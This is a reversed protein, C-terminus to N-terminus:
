SRPAPCSLEELLSLASRAAQRKEEPGTMMTDAVRVRVGLAEIRPREEEDLRDIVMGDLRGLSSLYLRAVGLPSVDVGAWRLFKDSPGKLSRGGVIPSMAVVPAPAKRILDRLRSIALIPGISAVPNSPAIIVARAGEVAARVEPTVGAQPSGRYEVGRVEDKGGRQVLYEQFHVSRPTRGDLILVHTEVPDDSMPLVATQVGLAARIHGTIETLRRGRRLARTRFLHTALDRDGLRFWDPEGYRGLLELCQFSDGAFGWGRAPDALGALTYTVIDLDPSIRLGQLELDDGTNVVATVRDPGAEQVLGWLFKSGGVGGALVVLM